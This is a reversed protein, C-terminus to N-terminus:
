ESNGLITLFVCSGFFVSFDRERERERAKDVRREQGSELSGRARQATDDRKVNVGSGRGEGGRGLV